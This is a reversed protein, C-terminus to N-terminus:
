RGLLNFRVNRLHQELMDRAMAADRNKLAAVLKRHEREYRKRREPTISRQKLLGWEGRERVLTMLQFVSVFFANRTAKAICEHLAGDWYEFEELTKASEGRRCCAEMAQFDSATAQNVVLDVLLPEILVRADMLEAPSVASTSSRRPPLRTKLDTAVYTGSGVSQEILGQEKFGRLVRRLASRGVGFEACLRREPPLREGATWRGNQLGDLLVQRLVDAPDAALPSDSRLTM